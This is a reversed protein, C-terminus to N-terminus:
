PNFQVVLDENINVVFGQKIAQLSKESFESILAYDNASIPELAQGVAKSSKSDQGPESRLLKQQRQNRLISSVKTQNIKSSYARQRELWDGQELTSAPVITSVDIVNNVMKHLTRNWASTEQKAGNADGNTGYGGPVERTNTLLGNGIVSGDDISPEAPNHLLRANENHHEDEQKDNPMCCSSFNGM